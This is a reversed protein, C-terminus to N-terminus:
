LHTRERLFYICSLIYRRSQTPIELMRRWPGQHLRHPAPGRGQDLCGQQHAGERLVPVEGHRRRRRCSRVYVFDAAGSYYCIYTTTTSSFSSRHTTPLPPPTHPLSSETFLSSLPSSLRPHTSPYNTKYVLLLPVLAGMSASGQPGNSRTPAILPSSSSPPPPALPQLARPRSKTPLCAAAEEVRDV